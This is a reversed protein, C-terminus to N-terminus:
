KPNRQKARWREMERACKEAARIRAAPVDFRQAMRAWAIVTEPACLDSARLVFAPEDPDLL